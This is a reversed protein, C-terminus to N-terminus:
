NNEIMNEGDAKEEEKQVIEEQAPEPDPVAVAVAQTETPAQNEEPEELKLKKASREDSAINESLGAEFEERTRKKTSSPPEQAM